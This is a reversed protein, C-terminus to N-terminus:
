LRRASVLSYDPDPTLSEGRPEPEWLVIKCVNFDVHHCTAVSHPTTDSFMPTLYHVHNDIMLPKIAMSLDKMLMSPDVKKPWEVSYVTDGMPWGIRRCMNRDDVSCSEGKDKSRM